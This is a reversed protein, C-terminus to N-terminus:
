GGGGVGIGFFLGDDDFEEGGFAAGTTRGGIGEELLEAVFLGEVADLDENEFLVDIVPVTETPVVGERRGIEGAALFVIGGDNRLAAHVSGLHNDITVRLEDGPAGLFSYVQDTGGRSMGLRAEDEGGRGRRFLVGTGERQSEIRGGRRGASRAEIKPNGHRFFTQMGVDFAAFVGTGSEVMRRDDPFEAFEMGDRQGELLRDGESDIDAVVPIKGIEGNDGEEGIGMGALDEGGAGGGDSRLGWEDVGWRTAAATQPPRNKTKARDQTHRMRKIKYQGVKLDTRRTRSYRLALRRARRSKGNLLM